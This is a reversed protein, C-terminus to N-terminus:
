HMDLPKDAPRYDTSGLVTQELLLSYQSFCVKLCCDKQQSIITYSPWNFDWLVGEM